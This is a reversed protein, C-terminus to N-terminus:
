LSSPAAPWTDTPRGRRWRGMGPQASRTGPRGRGCIGPRSCGRGRRRWRRTSRCTGAAMWSSWGACCSPRPISGFESLALWRTGSPLTFAPLGLALQIPGTLAVGHAALWASALISAVIVVLAGPVRVLRELAFLGALAMLGCGLSPAQWAAYRRVIEAVLPFFDTTQTHLDVLHPWQKVAIVLALGFIVATGMLGVYSIMVGMLIISLVALFSWLVYKGSSIAPPRREMITMM